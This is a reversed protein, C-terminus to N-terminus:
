QLKKLEGQYTTTKDPTIRVDFDLTEYGPARVEIRHPGAELHLRQFAGDFDNVLGVYYGDVYVEGERPKIKLRLSGEEDSSSPTFTGQDDGGGFGGVGFGGAAPMGGYWPDYYGYYGYSGYGGYGGYYGPPYYGPYYYGPIWISGGGGPPQPTTGRPVATGVSANGDRPRSYTPVGNSTGPTNETRGGSAARGSGGTSAAAGGTMGPGRTGGGNDSTRGSHPATYGSGGTPGSARGVSGGGGSSGGSPIFGGSYGGGSSTGGGGGGSSGSSVAGGGSSGGGAPASAAAGGGGTGSGFGQAHVPAASFAVAVAAAVAGGTLIRFTHKM